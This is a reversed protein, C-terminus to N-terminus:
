SVVCNSAIARGLKDLPGNKLPKPPYVKTFPFTLGTNKTYFEEYYEGTEKANTKNSELARRWKERMRQISDWSYEMANGESLTEARVDRTGQEHIAFGDGYKDPSTGSRALAPLLGENLLISAIRDVRASSVEAQMFRALEEIVAKTQTVLREYFVVFVRPNRKSVLLWELMIHEYTLIKAQPMIQANTAAVEVFEDPTYIDEFKQSNTTNYKDYCQGLYRFWSMRFDVPHRATTVILPANKHGLMESRHVMHSKFLRRSGPQDANLVEPNGDVFRSEIWPVGDSSPEACVQEFEEDDRANILRMARLLARDGTRPNCALIVDDARPIFDRVARTVSRPTYFWSEVLTAVRTPDMLMMNHGEFVNEDPIEDTQGRNGVVVFGGGRVTTDLTLEGAEGM